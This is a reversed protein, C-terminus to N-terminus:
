FDHRPRVVKDKLIREPGNVVMDQVNTETKAKSFTAKHKKLIKKAM